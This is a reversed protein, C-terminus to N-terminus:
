LGLVELFKPTNAQWSHTSVARERSLESLAAIDKHHWFALRERLADMGVSYARAGMKGKFVDVPPPTPILLDKSVPGVYENMPEGDTTLVPMGSMMAEVLHLGHGEWKTPSLYIDGKAYLDSRKPLTGVRLSLSPKTERLAIPTQSNVILPIGSGVFAQEVVRWGKRGDYGGWGNNFVFTEAKTRKIFPFDNHDVCCPIYAIKAIGAAKVREVSLRNPCIFWGTFMRWWPQKPNFWDANVVCHIPIGRQFARELLGHVFPVEVIILQTLSDVWGSKTVGRSLDEFVCKADIDHSERIHHAHRVCWHTDIPLHRKYDRTLGGIGSNTNYGVIGIRHTM